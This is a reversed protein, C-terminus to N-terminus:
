GDITVEKKIKEISSKIAKYITKEPIATTEAIEKVTLESFYYLQMIQLHKDNLINKMVTIIRNIQDDKVAKEEINADASNLSDDYEYTKNKIKVRSSNLYNLVHNKSVRYLWTRFSAKASDYKKLNKYIKYFIEQLLDETDQYNGTINYVYKFMENHYKDMLLRFKEKEGDLILEIIELDNL